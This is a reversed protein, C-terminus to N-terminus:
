SITVLASALQKPRIVKADFVHLGRVGDAFSDQLRVAETSVIQEAYTTAISHGALVTYVPNAGSTDTPVTNAEIIDFGAARGVQGNRLGDPTGSADARIFRDDHLLLAYFEPPVVVWRGTAPTNTKVLKTRLDVLLDYAQTPTASAVTKAGLANGGDVGAAITTAVYTDANLALNYSAGTTAADVFGGLAQRKDIDDVKFAFYKAQNVTFTENADSLLDWAITGNKVYDKVAPDAFSTIHVTDGAQAIAGEYDTNIIGSQAYVLSNRLAVLLSASWVEPIFNTIAM